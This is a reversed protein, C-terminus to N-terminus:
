HKQFSRSILLAIPLGICVVLICANIVASELSFPRKAVASLPLVVHNMVVYVALGYLSGFIVPESRLVEFERCALYYVFAATLAIFFHLALGLAAIPIGGQFAKLGLLDSAIGQLLREPKVGKTAGLIFAAAIDLTGAILGAYLVASM